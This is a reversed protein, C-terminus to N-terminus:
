GWRRRSGCAGRWTPPPPPRRGPPWRESSRSLLSTAQTRALMLPPPPALRPTLALAHAGRARGHEQRAAAEGANGGAGVLMTLFLTVVIHDKILEQYSDLVFSSSSQLVLLGLLWRGRSWAEEVVSREAPPTELFLECLELDPDGADCRAAERREWEQLALPAETEAPACPAAPLLM